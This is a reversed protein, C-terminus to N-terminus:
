REPQSLFRYRQNRTGNRRHIAADVGVELPLVSSPVCGPSGALSSCNSVKRTESLVSRLSLTPPETPATPKTQSTNIASGFRRGPVM